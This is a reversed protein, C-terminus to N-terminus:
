YNVSVQMKQEFYFYFSLEKQISHMLEAYQERRTNRNVFPNSAYKMVDAWM